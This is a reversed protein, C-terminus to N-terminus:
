RPEPRTAATLAATLQEADLQPGYGPTDPQIRWSESLTGVDVADFGIEDFLQTVQAKAVADDGAIALARRGPTGTPRGDTTIQGAHIHNFGKVVHAEPLHRQLLESSTLTQADLEAVQGDRQPYYNNTDIVTKGALPGVPVRPVAALPVAVVVLDGAAAAEEATAARARPGLEGILDALTEPRRSNSLVVDYGAAVPARAVQSGINGAGILGITAVGDITM